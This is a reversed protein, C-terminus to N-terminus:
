LGCPIWLLSVQGRPPHFNCQKMYSATMASHMPDAALLPSIQWLTPKWVCLFHKPSVSEQPNNIVTVNSHLVWGTLCLPSSTLRQISVNRPFLEWLFTNDVKQLREMLSGCGWCCNSGLFKEWCPSDTSWVSSSAYCTNKQRYHSRLYPRAGARWKPRRGM